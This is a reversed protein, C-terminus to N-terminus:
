VRKPEPGKGGFYAVPRFIPWRKYTSSQFYEQLEPLAEIRDLYSKLTPFDDYVGPILLRYFDFTDYAMFDVYTLEDGVLFKRDGLFAAFLKLQAPVSKVFEAKLKEFEPNYCTRNLSSFFDYIQQEAMEIRVNQEETKGALGYKRALYRLIAISQTMKVKDDIYYPLNPFDLNLQFKDNQWDDGRLAYRKDEFDVKKYHLLYRIPEALGRMDWYGLTGRSM